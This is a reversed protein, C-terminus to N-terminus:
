PRGEKKLRRNYWAFIDRAWVRSGRISPHKGDSTRGIRRDNFPYFHGAPVTRALVKIIGTDRAWRPPGIWRYPLKGLKKLIKRVFRAQRQPKRLYLENSGLVVFVIDPKYRQLAYDLAKTNAWTRTTSSSHHLRRYTGGNKQVWYRVWIDLGTIIMSDGVFLVTKGKFQRTVTPTVYWSQKKPRARRPAPAALVLSCLLLTTATM